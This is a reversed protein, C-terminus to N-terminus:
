APSRALPEGLIHWHLHFVTQGATPGVFVKVRYDNLGAGKATEAIFDLMQKAAEASLDSIDRFSEMHHEPIVLIHTDAKPNADDIAILGDARNVITAPLEGSVIRCFICDTNM